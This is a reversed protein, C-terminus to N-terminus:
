NENKLIKIMDMAQNFSIEVSGFDKVFITKDSGYEELRLFWHGKGKGIYYGVQFGDETIFKNELYYPYGLIDIEFETKLIQIANIIEILDSYEISATSIGSVKGPKEIQYFYTILSGSNVKRIRTEVKIGYTTRISNLKTDTFKTIVGTKSAFVDMKSKVSENENKLEQSNIVFACMLSAFLFIVKKM